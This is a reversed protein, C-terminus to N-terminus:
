AGNATEPKPVGSLRRATTTVSCGVLKAIKRVSMGEAQLRGLEALDVDVRPRGIPIGEARARALGAQTREIIRSREQEAVWGFLAILLQRMPGTTDLWTEKVSLLRVNQSDLQQVTFIVDLMSRGLRDLAWVIVANFAGLQADHKLREFAPRHKVASIQEEYVEVVEFGREEAMHRLEPLQNEPHQDVRSTRVYLVAARREKLLPRRTRIALELKADKQVGQQRAIRREAAFKSQRRHEKCYVLGRVAPESCRTCLGERRHREARREKARRTRERKTGRLRLRESIADVRKAVGNGDTLPATKTPDDRM